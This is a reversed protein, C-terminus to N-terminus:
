DAVVGNGSRFRSISFHMTKRKKKRFDGVVITSERHVLRSGHGERQNRTPFDFCLDRYYGVLLMAFLSLHISLPPSTFSRSVFLSHSLLTTTNSCAIDLYRPREYVKSGLLSACHYRRLRTPSHPLSPPTALPYTM